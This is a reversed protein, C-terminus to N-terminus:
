AFLDNFERQDRVMRPRNREPINMNVMADALAGPADQLELPIVPKGNVLLPVKKTGSPAITLPIKRIREHLTELGREFEKSPNANSHARAQHCKRSKTDYECTVREEGKRLSIIISRGNGIYGAVCHHQYSGEDDYEESCTLLKPTFIYKVYQPTFSGYLQDYARKDEKTPCYMIPPQIVEVVEIPEEIAARIHSEFIMHLSYGKKINRELSSYRSHEASFTNWKKVTLSLEPFYLRLRDRMIFHDHFQDILGHVPASPITTIDNMIHIMNEKEENSLEFVDRIINEVLLHKMGMGVGDFPGVRTRDFIDGNLNGLYKPYDKGLISCLKMLTRLELNPHQHLIKITVKSKIGLRDLVSAVLKKDNKKLFKETPYYYKLLGLGDNPLKIGKLESFKPIWHAVFDKTFSDYSVPFGFVRGKGFLIDLFSDKFEQDDFEEIFLPYHESGRSLPFQKVKFIAPLAQELSTFSNSYFAKKKKKKYSEYTVILFNGKVTDFTITTSSTVKRFYKSNLKRTKTLNYRKVTVKDGERKIWREMKHIEISSFPNNFHRRIQGDKVTEYFDSSIATSIRKASVLKIPECEVEPNGKMARNKYKKTPNTTYYFNRSNKRYLNLNLIPPISDEKIVASVTFKRTQQPFDDFPDSDESMLASPSNREDTDYIVCKEGLNSYNKFPKIRAYNFSQKYENNM